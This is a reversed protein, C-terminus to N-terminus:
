SSVTSSAVDDLEELELELELELEELEDLEEDDLEELELEELEDLELESECLLESEVDDAGASVSAGFHACSVNASPALQVTHLAYM